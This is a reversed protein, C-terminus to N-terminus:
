RKMLQPLEKKLDDRVSKQWLMAGIILKQMNKVGEFIAAM